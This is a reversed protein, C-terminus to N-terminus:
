FSANAGTLINHFKEIKSVINLTKDSYQSLFEKNAYTMFHVSKIKLFHPLSTLTQVKEGM